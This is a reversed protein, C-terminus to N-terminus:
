WSFLLWQKKGFNKKEMQFVLITKCNCMLFIFAHEFFSEEIEYYSDSNWWVFCKMRFDDKLSKGVIMVFLKSNQVYIYVNM